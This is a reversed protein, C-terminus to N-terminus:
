HGKSTRLIQEQEGLADNRFVVSYSITDASGRHYEYMYSEAADKRVSSFAIRISDVADEYQRRVLANISDRIHITQLMAEKNMEQTVSPKNEKKGIADLKARWSYWVDGDGDSKQTFEIGHSHQRLYDELQRLRPNANMGSAEADGVRLRQGFATTVLAVLLSLIIRRDM